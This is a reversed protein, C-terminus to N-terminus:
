GDKSQIFQFMPDTENFCATFEYALQSLADSLDPAINELDHISLQGLRKSAVIGQEKPILNAIVNHVTELDTEVLNYLSPFQQKIGVNRNHAIKISTELSQLTEPNIDSIHNDIM